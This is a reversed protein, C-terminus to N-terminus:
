YLLVLLLLFFIYLFNLTTTLILPTWSRLNKNVSFRDGSFLLSLLLVFSIRYLLLLYLFNSITYISRLSKWFLILLNFFVGELTPIADIASDLETTNQSTLVITWRLIAIRIHLTTTLIYYEVLSSCTCSSIAGEFDCILWRSIRILWTDAQM